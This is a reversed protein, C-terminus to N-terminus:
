KRLLGLKKLADQRNEGNKGHPTILVSIGSSRPLKQTNNGPQSPQVSAANLSKNSDDAPHGIGFDKASGASPPRSRNKRLQGPSLEVNTKDPNTAHLTPKVVISNRGVGSRHETNTKDPNTGQLTPDIIISNRGVGSRREINTKDSTTAQATPEIVISSLGVGSRELSASKVEYPIAQQKKLSGERSAADILKPMDIQSQVVGPVPSEAQRSDQVAEVKPAGMYISPNNSSLPTDKAKFTPLRNSSVNPGSVVDESKLLGLKRLAEMRTKQPDLQPRDSQPLLTHAAGMDKHSKLIINSPLKKPKPAVVPPSKNDSYDKPVGPVHESSTSPTIPKDASAHQSLMLPTLHPAKKMSAKKHLNELENHIGRSTEPDASQSKRMEAPEDTGGGPKPKTKPLEPTWEPPEDFVPTPQPSYHTTTSREAPEDMFDSPPPILGVPIKSSAKQPKQQSKVDLSKPSSEKSNSHRPLNARVPPEPIFSPPLDIVDSSLGISPKATVVNSPATGESVALGTQQHYSQSRFGDPVDLFAVPQEKPSSEVPRSTLKNNGSALLLPTPVLYKQSPKRHKGMVQNPDEHALLEEPKNLNISPQHINKGALDHSPRDPEDSSLGSDDEVELAEITEELYMLTAKEEASLHGFSDDSFGSNISVVSDCSGASDMGTVSEVAIDGPWTDSKPM